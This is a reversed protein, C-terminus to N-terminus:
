EVARWSVQRLGPPGSGRGSHETDRAITIDVASRVGGPGFAEARLMLVGSGPNGAGLGDALPNGDTESPDDAVLLVVYFQSPVAVLDALHGSAFLRWRPNALGWPREAAVAAMDANSCAALTGCNALNLIEELDIKSGDGPTRVGAASGDYLESHVDGALVGTWESLQSLEHMAHIAVAEAAYTGGAADRFNRAITTEVSSSLLLAAGLASMMLLGMMAVIIAYGGEGRSSASTM